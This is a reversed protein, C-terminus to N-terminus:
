EIFSKLLTILSITNNMINCFTPLNAEYFVAEFKVPKQARLIIFIFDKDLDYFFDAFSESKDLVCQGGYAYIFLQIIIAIGFFLPVIRKILGDLMVLQFGIVCLNISTLFFQTFIVPKILTKLDECLKYIIQHKEIFNKRDGDFSEKLIDFQACINLCGTFFLIM